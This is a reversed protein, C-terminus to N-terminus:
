DLLTQASGRDKDYPKKELQAIEKALEEIQLQKFDDCADDNKGDDLM